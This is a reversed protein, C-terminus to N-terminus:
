YTKVPAMSKNRYIFYLLDIFERWGGVNLKQRAKSQFCMSYTHMYHHQLLMVKVVVCGWPKSVRSRQHQAMLACARMSETWAWGCKLVGISICVRLSLRVPEWETMCVCVCVRVWRMRGPWTFRQTIIQQLWSHTVDSVPVRGCSLSIFCCLHGIYILFAKSARISQQSPEMRRSKACSKGSHTVVCLQFHFQNNNVKTITQRQVPVRMITRGM